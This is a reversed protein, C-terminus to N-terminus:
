KDMVEKAQSLLFSLHFLHPSLKAHIMSGGRPSFGAEKVKSHCFNNWWKLKQSCTGKSCLSTLM